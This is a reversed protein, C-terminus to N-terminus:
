GCRRRRILTLLGIALASVGFWPVALPERASCGCGPAQGGSGGSPSLGGGDAGSDVASDGVAGADLNAQDSVTDLAKATDDGADTTAQGADAQSSDAVGADANVPPEACDQAGLSAKVLATVLNVRGADPWVAELPVGCLLTRAGNPLTFLSAAAGGKDAYNLLAKAGELQLVDAGDVDYGHHTGDDFSFTGALAGVGLLGYTEADDASFRAGFWTQMWDAGAAGAKFDLAWGVESGHLWLVRSAAGQLWETLLKQHPPALVGDVTSNEGAAWYVLAHNGLTAADVAERAVMDVGLGAAALAPVHQAAYAFTNVRWQRLRQVKALNFASLDDLPAQAADLRTFGQVVLARKAGACGAVAGVVASPLSHGGSNLAIVRYYVPTAGVPLGVQVPSAAAPTGGDFGLGDNSKQVLYGTAAHGYAGGAAGATWALTAAGGDTHVLELGEPSEPLWVLPLKDRDAFYQAIAKYLSRALLHRFRPQRLQDADELTSHFAAEVLAAPMENNHNPNIEGFWATYVGRDKWAADWLAKIDKVMITQILKGFADSGKSGTFQYTGDPSNPGYVYTSTGRAPSPANTHWSLYIADEGSEHEWASMRSRCSVDDSPDDSSADYVTAPAGSFQAYTRCSEEWRPRGSTPGKNPPKGTGRVVSGMGGGLRVADAIVFRDVLGSETDNHLVISGTAPNQGKAFVFQGLWFWTGGHRMQDVRLHTVGGTHRVEFHADPARNAGAVWTLYVAYAGAEPMDPVFQASATAAGKVTAVARYGGMAFHNEAGEVLSKYAYGPSAGKQFPGGTESYGASGDDVVVMQSQMDRERLTVVQAGANRLMPVLYHLAAEANLLDEVLNHTNGRQTAWANLNQTWTFGHGPSLYVTKGSLGGIAVDPGSQGSVTGRGPGAPPLLENPKTPPPAIPEMWQPLAAFQGARAPVGNFQKSSKALLVVQRVEPPLALVQGVAGTALVSAGVAQLYHSHLAQVLSEPLGHRGFSRQPVDLWVDARIGQITRRIETFELPQAGDDQTAQVTRSVLSLWYVACCLAITAFKAIKRRNFRFNDTLMTQGWKRSSFRRNKSM